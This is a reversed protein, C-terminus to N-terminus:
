QRERVIVTIHSMRKQYRDARGRARPMIRKMSPGEDVYASAVVLQDVNMDYNNEANAAASKVVKEVVRAARKPTFRLMALVENVPKGKIIRTVQRAKRPSIRVYRAVARAEM